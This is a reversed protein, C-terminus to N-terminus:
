ELATRYLIDATRRTAETWTFRAAQEVGKRACEARLAPEQRLRRVIAAMAAADHPDIAFGAEGMVEPLSSGNSAIVPAGCAMAELVPLGFGEYLSPFLFAECCAYLCRLQSETVEGLDVLADRVGLAEAKEVVSEWYPHYRGGVVVLRIDSGEARLRALTAVAALQNKHPFRNGVSLLFPRLAGLSTCEVSEGPGLPRFAPSVGLPVVELRSAVGPVRDLIDRRTSESDTIVRRALRTGARLTIHTSVRGKADALKPLELLILDHITVVSRGPHMLLPVDSFPFFWVDARTHGRLALEAWALQARAMGWRRLLPHVTVRGCAGQEAAFAALPEPDGLLTVQGFRADAFVSALVERIYRGVGTAHLARADVGLTVAERGSM